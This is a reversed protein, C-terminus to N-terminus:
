EWGGSPGNKDSDMALTERATINRKKSIYYGKNDGVAVSHGRSDDPAKNAQRDDQADPGHIIGGSKIFKGAVYVGGGSRNTSNGSLTGGAMTFTGEVWVGGGGGYSNSFSSSSNGSITGSNMIFTGKVYVGGGYSSSSDSNSSSNGSITGGSMTFTGEAYVGGGYASGGSYGVHSSSNGSITGGNMTFTSGSAAYVGSGGVNGNMSASNGSITGGSMTFAGSDVRVGGGNGSTKNGTLVGGNMVFKGGAVRVISKDADNKAGELTIGEELTFTVGAGITFLSYAPSSGAFKVTHKGGASKLTISVTKRDYSFDTPTVAQDKDLVITYNGGEQAHAILWDQIGYLDM